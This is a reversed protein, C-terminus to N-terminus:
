CLGHHALWADHAQIFQFVRTAIEENNPNKDPHWRARLARLAKRQQSFPKDLIATLEAAVEIEHRGVSRDEDSPEPMLAAVGPLPREPVVPASPPPPATASATAASAAAAAAATVAPDTRRDASAQWFRESDNLEEAARPLRSAFRENPRLKKKSPAEELAPSDRPKPPFRRWVSESASPHRVRVRGDGVALFGQSSKAMATEAAKSSAFRIFAIRENVDGEMDVRVDLVPGFRKFAQQLAVKARSEWSGSDGLVVDQVDTVEVISDQSATNGRVIGRYKTNANASRGADFGNRVNSSPTSTPPPSLSRPAVFGPPPGEANELQRGGLDKVTWVTDELKKKRQRLAFLSPDGAVQVAVKRLELCDKLAEQRNRRMPGRLRTEEGGHLFVIVEALHKGGETVARTVAPATAAM